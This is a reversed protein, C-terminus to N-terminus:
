FFNKLGKIYKHKEVKCVPCTYTVPIRAYPANEIFEELKSFDKSTLSDIFEAIEEPPEEAAHYVDDGLFITEIAHLVSERKGIKDTDLQSILSDVTPQRMQIMLKDNLKILSSDGPIPYHIEVTRLDINVPTKANEDECTDCRMIVTSWEGVSKARIHTFIYEVDYATLGVGFASKPEITNEVVSLLTNLMVHTDESEYAALLAREEKVFFPRFKAKKGTSPITIDYIPAQIKSLISM